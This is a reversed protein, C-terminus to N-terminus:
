SVDSILKKAKSVLLDRYLYCCHLTVSPVSEKNATQKPIYVSIFLVRLVIIPSIVTEEMSPFGRGFLVVACLACDSPGEALLRWNSYSLQWTACYLLFYLRM